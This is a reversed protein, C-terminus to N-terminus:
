RCCCCLLMIVWCTTKTKRYCVEDFRSGFAVWRGATVWCFGLVFLADSECHEVIIMTAVPAIARVWDGNRTAVAAMRRRTHNKDGFSHERDMKAWDQSYIVAREGTVRAVNEVKRVAVAGSGALKAMRNLTTSSEEGNRM